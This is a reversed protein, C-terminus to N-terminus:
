IKLIKIKLDEENKRIEFNMREMATLIDFPSYEIREILFHQNYRRFKVHFMEEVIPVDHDKMFWKIDGLRSVYNTLSLM